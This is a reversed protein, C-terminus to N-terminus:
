RCRVRQAYPISNQIANDAQRFEQSDGDTIVIYYDKKTSKKETTEIM